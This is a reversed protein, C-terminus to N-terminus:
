LNVQEKAGNKKIHFLLVEKENVKKEIPNILFTNELYEKDMLNATLQKTTENYLIVLIKSTEIGKGNDIVEIKPNLYEHQAIMGIEYYFSVIKVLTEWQKEELCGKTDLSDLLTNLKAKTKLLLTEKESFDNEFLNTFNAPLAVPKHVEKDEKDITKKNKTAALWNTLNNTHKKPPASIKVVSKESTQNAKGIRNKLILNRALQIQDKLNPQTVTKENQKDLYSKEFAVPTATQIQHTNKKEIITGMLLYFTIAVTGAIAMPLGTRNQQTKGFIHKVRHLLDGDNGAASLALIKKPESKAVQLLATAYIHPSYGFQLVWNDCAKECELKTEKIFARMFPNPYLIVEFIQLLLMWLFDKRKIHALEHLILAELLRKDMQYICSLPILIVPKLWGYTAPSTLSTALVTVQQKIDLLQSHQQIFIKLDIPIKKHLIQMSHKFRAIGKAKKIIGLCLVLLYALGSVWFFGQLLPSLLWASTQPNQYTSIPETLELYFTFLFMLVGGFSCIFGVNFKHSATPNLLSCYARFLGYLAGMQWISNCLGIGLSKIVQEM